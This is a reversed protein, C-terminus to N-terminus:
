QDRERDAQKHCLNCLPTVHLWNEPHYSHHHYSQAQKGCHACRKTKVPQLKGALIANNVSYKAKYKEPNNEKWQKESNSHAQRGAVTKCYEKNYKIYAARKIPDARYKAVRIKRASRVEPDNKYKERQQKLQKERIAPDRYRKKARVSRCMKCEGVHGDKERASCHFNDIDKHQQCSFCKKIM